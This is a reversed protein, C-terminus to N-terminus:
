NFALEVYLENDKYSIYLFLIGSIVLLLSAIFSMIVLQRRKPSDNPKLNKLDQYASYLFYLYVILLITFIGIMIERYKKKSEINNHLYFDRELSNSYWSMFIIGLYIIWIYDEIEIEKLKNKVEESM